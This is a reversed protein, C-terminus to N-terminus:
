QSAGPEAAGIRFLERFMGPTLISLPNVSVQPDAASGTLDYNFGFLGEGPRTLISGIGNLLYVPSIVGQMDLARTATTYTGSMSVGLSAGVASGRSLSLGGPSTRFVAEATLFLIGANSMEDILGVVSIANLLAALAPAEVVRVNRVSASGDYIGRRGEPWLTMDLSGGRANRFLGAAALV